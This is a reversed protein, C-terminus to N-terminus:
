EKTTERAKELNIGNYQVTYKVTDGTLPVPVTDYWYTV